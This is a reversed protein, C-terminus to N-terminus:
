EAVVVKGTHGEDRASNRRVFYVGPVLSRVDNAGPRLEMVKRGTADLMWCPRKPDSSEPLFLLDRVVTPFRSATRLRDPPRDSTGAHPSLTAWIRPSNYPVDDVVGTWGSCALLMKGGSGRALVPNVQYGQQTVAAFTDLVTGERTVRAGYLDREGNREDQWVVLFDTGDYEITPCDQAGPARCIELGVTDLVTGNGTVRAGYIDRDANRWDSWVVFFGDDGSAAAPQQQTGTATSVALGGTDLVVGQRSVRAGYIDRVGVDQDQWLVLYDTGNCAVAPTVQDGSSTCVAVGATDLVTGSQSVRACYIDYSSNRWDQWAVLFDTGDSSVEPACQEWPSGSVLIGATDLVVGDHDVRAGCVDRERYKGEEWVVLSNADGHAAAPVTQEGGSPSIRVVTSDIVRGEPTVRVGYIDCTGARSEGWVVLFDTAGFAADPLKQSVAANSVPIGMPDLANGDGDVRAVSVSHDAMGARVDNWAVVRHMGDFAIAPSGAYEGGRSIHFGPVDIVTGDTAVRGGFVNGHAVADTWVVLYQTGDFAIKPDFEYWTSTAVAFGASDLVEGDHTIRSGYIDTTPGGRRDEWVVLAEDIGLAIAPSGQWDQALSIPFGASDLLTGESDVRAGYIDGYPSNRTDAWVLQVNSGDYCVAPATQDASDTLLAIGSPDLVSGDQTVRAGYIDAGVSRLDSWVVLYNTGDFAIAPEGQYGSATSVPIGEPDLVSGDSTVRCVYIDGSDARLDTWAVLYDTGDSSVAPLTQLNAAASIVLGAADLVTGSASQGVFRTGYIDSSSGSREDAWAILSNASNSAMAAHLQNQEAPAYVVGPDVMFEGTNASALATAALMALTSLRM